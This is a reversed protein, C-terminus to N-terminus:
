NDLAWLCQKHMAASSDIAEPKSLRTTGHLLHVRVHIILLAETDDAQDILAVGCDQRAPM